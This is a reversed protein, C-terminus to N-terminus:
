ANEYKGELIILDSELKQIKTVLKVTADTDSLVPQPLTSPQVTPPPLLFSGTRDKVLSKKLSIKATFPSVHLQFNLNSKQIGDLVENFTKAALMTPNILDTTKFGETKDMRLKLTRQRQSQEYLRFYITICIWVYEYLTMCIWVYYYMTICLWVYDYKTM